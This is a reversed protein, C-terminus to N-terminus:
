CSRAGRSVPWTACRSTSAWPNPRTTSCPPVFSSGALWRSRSRAVSSAWGPSSRSPADLARSLGGIDLDERWKGTVARGLNYVAIGFLGLAIAGVIWRGAPWDLITDVQQDGSGDQSSSRTHTLIRITTVFLGVYVLGRAVNAVRDIAKDDRDLWAGAFRWLAYGAVGIAVITLLGRGFPQEVIKELAGTNSARDDETGRTRVLEVIIVATLIYLVGRTVLGLRALAEMPKSRAARTAEAHVHSATSSMTVLAEGADVPAFRPRTAGLGVAIRGLRFSALASSHSPRSLRQPRRTETPEFGM